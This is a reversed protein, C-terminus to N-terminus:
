VGWVLDNSLGGWLLVNGVVPDSYTLSGDAAIGSVFQNAAGTNAKVGGLAGATAAPLTYSGGTIASWQAGNWAAPTTINVLAKYVNSNYTVLDGINYTKAADFPLIGSVDPPVAFTLDGTTSNIGTVFAGGGPNATAKVGGTTTPQANPLTYGSGIETWNAANWVGAATAGNARYIKGQYAVLDNQSFTLAANFNTVPTRSSTLNGNAAIGTLYEGVPINTAFVGGLAGATAQPLIYGAGIEAWQTANWVGAAVAGVARYIKGQYAVLDNAIYAKTSSFLTVADAEGGFTQWTTGNHCEFANLTGNYRIDGAVGAPRNATTGVPIKLAGTGTAQLRGPVTLNFPTLTDTTDNFSLNATDQSLVGNPGAFLVSGATMPRLRMTGDVDVTNTPAAVNVGLRKNAADYALVTDSTLTSAASGFGIKGTPITAVAPPSTNWRGTVGDFVLTDGTSVGTTNVDGLSSLFDGLTVLKWDSQGIVPASTGAPGSQDYIWLLVGNVQTPMSAASPMAPNRWLAKTPPVVVTWTTASSTWVEWTTANVYNLYTAGAKAPVPPTVGLANGIGLPVVPGVIGFATRYYVNVAGNTIAPVVGTTTKTATWLNGNYHVLSNVYYRRGAQYEELHPQATGHTWKGSANNWILADGDHAPAFLDTDTLDKLSNLNDWDAANFAGATIAKNAKRIYGGQVVIDGISYNATASFKTIALFDVAAGTNDVVGLQMDAMNVYPEGEDNGVPRSTTTSSRLIKITAMDIFGQTSQLRSWAAM